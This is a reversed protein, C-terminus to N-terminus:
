AAPGNLWDRVAEADYDYRYGAAPFGTSAEVIMYGGQNVLPNPSRSRRLVYGQRDAAARLGGATLTTVRIDMEATEKLPQFYRQWAM